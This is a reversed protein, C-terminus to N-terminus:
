SLMQWVSYIAVPTVATWCVSWSILLRSLFVARGCRSSSPLTDTLDLFGTYLSCTGALGAVFPLLMGLLVVLFTLPAPTKFIHTALGLAVYVPLIGILMVSMVVQSKLAHAVVDRFTMRVGALLGYFYLSPLCIGVTSILGINYATVLAPVRRTLWVDQASVPEFEVLPLTDQRLYTAVDMLKPWYGAVSLVLALTFGFLTFAVLELALFRPILEAQHAPRRIIRNLQPRDKLVLEVIAAMGSALNQRPEFPVSLSEFIPEDAIAM